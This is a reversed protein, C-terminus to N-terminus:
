GRGEWDQEALFDLLELQDVVELDEVRVDPLIDVEEGYGLAVSLEEELQEDIPDGWEFADGAELTALPAVETVSPTESGTSALYLVLAAAAAFVAAAPAFRHAWGRGPPALRAQLDALGAAHRDVGGANALDADALRRVGADVAHFARVRAAVDPDAAIRARLADHEDLPLEDDMAASIARDLADRENPAAGDDLAEITDDSGQRTDDTM